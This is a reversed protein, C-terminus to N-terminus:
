YNPRAEERMPVCQKMSRPRKDSFQPHLECGTACYKDQEHWVATPCGDRRPCGREPCIMKM